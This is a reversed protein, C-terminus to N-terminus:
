FIVKATQLYPRDVCPPPLINVSQSKATLSMILQEFTLLSAASSSFINGTHVVRSFDTIAKHSYFSSLCIIQHGLLLSRIRTQTKPPPPPPSRLFSDCASHSHQAPLVSLFFFNVAFRYLIYLFIIRSCKTTDRNGM